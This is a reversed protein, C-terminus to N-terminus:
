HSSVRVSAAVIWLFTPWLEDHASAGLWQLVHRRQTLYDDGEPALSTRLYNRCYPRQM